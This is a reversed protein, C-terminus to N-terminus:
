LIAAINLEICTKSKATLQTKSVSSQAGFKLNIELLGVDLRPVLAIEFENVPAYAGVDINIFTRAISESDGISTQADADRIGFEFAIVISRQSAMGFNARRKWHTIVYIKCCSIAKAPQVGISAIEGLILKNMLDSQANAEVKALLHESITETMM